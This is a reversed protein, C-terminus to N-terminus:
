YEATASLRDRECLSPKFREYLADPKSLAGSLEFGKVFEAAAANPDNPLLEEAVRDGESLTELAGPILQYPGVGAIVGVAQVREPGMAATALAFPGGGSWGTTRFREIGLRDAVRLALRAVSALSFPIQTSRGYGPRDFAILRVGAASVVEGAWALELRSGPTGHFHILPDGGAVGSERVRLTIAGLRVFREVVVGSGRECRVESTAM